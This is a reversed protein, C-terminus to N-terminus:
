ALRRSEARRSQSEAGHPRIQVGISHTQRRTRFLSLDDRYRSACSGFLFYRPRDADGYLFARYPAKAEERRVRQFQRLSGYQDDSLCDSSDAPVVPAGIGRASRADQLFPRCRCDHRRGHSDAPRRLLAQLGGGTAEENSHQIPGPSASRVRSVRVYLALWAPERAPRHGGRPRRHLEFGVQFGAHRTRSWVHGSRGSIPLADHLSLTYIETTATDNFFFFLFFLDWLSVM